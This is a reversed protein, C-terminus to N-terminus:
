TGALTRAWADGGPHTRVPEAGLLLVAGPSGDRIGAADDGEVLDGADPPAVPRGHSTSLDPETGGNM